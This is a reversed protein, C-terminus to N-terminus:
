VGVSQCDPASSPQTQQNSLTGNGLDWEWFTPNGSSLDQFNVILPACGSFSTARFNAKTQSIGAASYLVFATTLLLILSKNKNHIDVTM